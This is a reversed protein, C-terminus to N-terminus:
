IPWNSFRLAKRFTVRIRKSTSNSTGGFPTTNCFSVPVAAEGALSLPSAYLERALVNISTDPAFLTGNM